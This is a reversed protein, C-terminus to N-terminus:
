AKGWKLMLAGSGQYVQDCCSDTGLRKRVSDKSLYRSRKQDLNVIPSSGSVTLRVEGLEQLDIDYAVSEVTGRYIVITDDLALYSKGFDVDGPIRNIFGIRTELTYGVMGTEATSSFSYDPDALVVKYSNTEIHSSLQPSEVALILSDATYTPGAPTLTVDMFHTTSSYFVGGTSNTIRILYFAETADDALCKKINSSFELM